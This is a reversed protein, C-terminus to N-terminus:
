PGPIDAATEVPEQARSQAQSQGSALAEINWGIKIMSKAWSLVPSRTKDANLVTLHLIGVFRQAAYHRWEGFDKIGQVTRGEASLFQMFSIRMWECVALVTAQAEKVSLQSEHARRELQVSLDLRRLSESCKLWFDQCAAIQVPDNRLLAAELRAHAREESAELRELAAAAGKKGAPPLDGNGPSEFPGVVHQQVTQASGKSREDRRRKRAKEINTERITNRTVWERVSKPDRLNCGQKIWLYLTSRSKGLKRAYEAIEVSNYAM